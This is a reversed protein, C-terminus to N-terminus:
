LEAFRPDKLNAAFGISTALVGRVQTSPDDNTMHAMVQMMEATPFALFINLAAAVRVEYPEATNRLISFLVARVEENKLNALTKLSIIIQTRLYKTVAIHGELYPAFVKLIEPRALNGLTRVYVQAKSSDGEEVAKKLEQSLRPIVTHVVFLDQEGSRLFKTVALLASTNLFRQEMVAPNFALEYFIRTVKETHFSLSGAVSTIVEAAVEGRIIKALIWARIEEFAAISGAQAVADRYIIWMKNKSANKSEKAVEISSTMESLQDANMFMIFRVLLNFKSLFDAKPLNSPDQLLPTMDQLLKQANVVNEPNVQFFSADNNTFLLSDSERLLGSELTKWESDGVPKVETLTFGVFSYVQAKQKGFLLPNVFVSSLFETKYITGQKGAFIRSESTHKIFQKEDNEYAIGNWVAGEPVGFAFGARKSCSGYNKSKTIEIPDEAFAPLIRHIDAAVPSISYLTECDGTVDAEMKKFLGQFTEKDFSNPFNHVHGYTSLDVQLASILGKLLNENAISVSNPVKLSLVRGGDVIIEFVSDLGQVPQYQLDSPVENIGMQGKTLGYVTNELKALLQGSKLVRIIFNTKFANGNSDSNEFKNWTYSNVEYVYEKGVQWPWKPNEVLPSSAVAALLYRLVRNIFYFLLM